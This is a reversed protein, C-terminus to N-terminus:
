QSTCWSSQQEKLTAEVLLLNRKEREQEMAHRICYVCKEIKLCSAEDTWANHELISETLHLPRTNMWFTSSLMSKTLNCAKTNTLIYSCEDFLSSQNHSHVTLDVSPVHLFLSCLLLAIMSEIVQQQRYLESEWYIEGYSRNQTDMPYWDDMNITMKQTTENKVPEIFFRKLQELHAIMKDGNYRIGNMRYKTNTIKVVQQVTEDFVLPDFSPTVMAEEKNFLERVYAVILTAVDNNEIAMSLMMWMTLQTARRVVEQDNYFTLVMDKSGQTECGYIELRTKPPPEHSMAM